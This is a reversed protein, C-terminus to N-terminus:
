PQGKVSAIAEFVRKTRKNNPNLSKACWELEVVLEDRQEKVRKFDNFTTGGFHELYETGIGACANVCAVIRRANAEGSAIAVPGSEGLPPYIGCEQELTGEFPQSNFKHKSWEWPGPTHETKAAKEHEGHSM